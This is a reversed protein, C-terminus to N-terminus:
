PRPIGDARDATSHDHRDAMLKWFLMVLGMQAGAAPVVVRWSRLCGGIIVAAMAATTAANLVTARDRRPRSSWEEEGLMARAAWSADTRPEPFIVPNILMWASVLLTIRRSRTWFPAAILPISAWRSWASLPNAHRAFVARKVSTM